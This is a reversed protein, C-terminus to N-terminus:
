GVALLILITVFGTVSHAFVPVALSRVRIALYGYWCGLLFMYVLVDFSYQAGHILAFLISTAIVSIAYIVSPAIFKHLNFVLFFKLFAYLLVGRFICEEVIPAVIGSTLLVLPLSDGSDIVYSVAWPPNGVGSLHVWLQFGGVLVMAGVAALAFDKRSGGFVWGLLPRNRLARYVGVVAILVAVSALQGAATGVVILNNFPGLLSRIAWPILALVVHYSGVALAIWLAAIAFQTKAEKRFPFPQDYAIM